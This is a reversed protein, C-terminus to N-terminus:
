GVSRHWVYIKRGHELQPTFGLRELWRGAAAINEDALAMVRVVGSDRIIKMMAIGARHLAVPRRRFEETIVAFGIVVGDERYGIGGIGIVRDGILATIARIRVPLPESTVQAIDAAVTPRLIVAQDEAM